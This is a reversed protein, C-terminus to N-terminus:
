QCAKIRNLVIKKNNPLPKSIQAVRICTFVYAQAKMTFTKMDANQRSNFEGFFYLWVIGFFWLNHDM